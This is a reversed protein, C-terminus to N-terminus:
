YSLMIQLQYFPILNPRTPPLLDSPTNRQAIDQGPGKRNNGKIQRRGGCYLHELVCEGGHLVSGDSGRALVFRNEKLSDNPNM